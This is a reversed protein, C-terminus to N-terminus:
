NKILKKFKEILKVPEPDVGKKQALHYVTWNALIISASIKEFISARSIDVMKTKINRGTLVEKFKSMRKKIKAHDERDSLVIPAFDKGKHKYGEIENHNMEPFVNNFAHRKTNENIAIKWYYGLAKNKTSTYVLPVKEKLFSAISEGEKKLKLPSIKEPLENLTEEQPPNLIIQSNKLVLFLAGLLLGTAWRPQIDSKPIEILNKEKKAKEKLKGGTTIALLPIDQKLAQHYCSLTEETNGSYSICIVASKAPFHEPAYNKRVEIPTRSGFLKILQAPLGSGGMGCIVIREPIQSFKQEVGRTAIEKFQQPFNKITNELNKLPM